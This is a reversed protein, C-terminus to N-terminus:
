EFVIGGYGVVHGWNDTVDGSTYYGVKKPEWNKLKAIETIVTLGYIGCVTSDSSSRYVEYPNKFLIKEIIKGDKQYLRDRINDRFPVYGFGNGYHTFDSSVIIGVERNVFDSLIEAVKNCEEIQLNNFLIPVIRFHKKKKKPQSRQLFPLLVELSHENSHADESVGVDLDHANLKGMIENGLGYSNKVEGLPTEFDEKSFSIKNGIGSHNVGLLIFTKKEPIKSIVDGMLKGSFPYGAHPIIAAKVDEEGGNVLFRDVEERLEEKDLPYFQGAFKANRM